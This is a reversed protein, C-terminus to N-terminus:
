RKVLHACEPVPTLATGDKLYQSLNDCTLDGMAQRTAHTASGVHPQLTVNDMGFFASPVKPEEEFVDLGAGGLRGEQLAKILAAEDVVSGRAVNVLIGEPGLADIVEANIIHRTGPGGPTICILVDCARAMEVLDPYFAYPADKKSRSHYVVTAGFVGLREAIALGIRGLGVIGVTRNQPSATLPAAGEREWRGERVYRDYAVLKRATAFWLLIATNAVEDNLVNPTHTVIIGRDAAHAADISDYGVGYSSVIKLNPLADMVETTLGITTCCATIKPGTEALFNARAPEDPLPHVTFEADLRGRMRPSVNGVLLLDPKM